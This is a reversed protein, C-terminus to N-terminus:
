AGELARLRALRDILLARVQEDDFDPHQHRIGDAM